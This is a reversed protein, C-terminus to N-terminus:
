SGCSQTLFALAGGKLGYADDEPDNWVGAFAPASAAALNAPAATSVPM